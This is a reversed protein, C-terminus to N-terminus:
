MTGTRARDVIYIDTDIYQGSKTKVPVDEYNIIGSKNLTQMITPFDSMDLSVGIDQLNKGICEDESYGLMKEAAPNTHSINGERKELLVIGDSATEFIRRYREESEILLDELRRRETINEEALLDELRKRETIDEIALLIIPQDNKKDRIKSVNLLM